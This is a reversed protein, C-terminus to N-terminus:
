ILCSLVFNLAFKLKCYSVEMEVKLGLWTMFKLAGKPGYSLLYVGILAEVCDAISKDPISQQILLNYPVALAALEEPLWERQKSKPVVEVFGDVDPEAAVKVNSEDAQLEKDMELDAEEAGENSFKEEVPLYGFPLWNDTPEFKAAVMLEGLCKKLGLRYLRFNSVQKSRLFSLKGEHKDPHLCFLYATISYKLFSDGVTELRELNIADNANSMTLAQLIVCPSPGYQLSPSDCSESHDFSIM